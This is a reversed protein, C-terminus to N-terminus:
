RITFVADEFNSGEYLIDSLRYIGENTISVIYRMEHISGQICYILEFNPHAHLKFSSNPPIHMINWQLNRSNSTSNLEFEHFEDESRNSFFLNLANKIKSAFIDKDVTETVIYSNILEGPHSLNASNFEEGKIISVKRENVSVWGFGPQKLLEDTLNM